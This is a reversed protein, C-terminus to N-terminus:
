WKERLRRRLVTWASGTAAAAVVVMNVPMTSSTPPLDVVGVGAVMVKVKVVM